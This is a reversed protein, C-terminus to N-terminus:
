VKRSARALFMNSFERLLFRDALVADVPEWAELAPPLFKPALREVWNIPGCYVGHITPTEFGARILERRLRGSTTFFQKLRTMDGVKVRSTLQNILWYGNLSLQPAATALCRGGPKLVRAMERLSPGPKPLYRLVEVSIVYDFRADQFPLREVDALRLDVGPNNLRARELMEGSGDVGAVDFGRRRLRALHHGTGCGVDLLRLGDGRRPLCQELLANLRKRSYVFCNQYPDEDLERYFSAFDGAQQSHTKIARKKQDEAYETINM